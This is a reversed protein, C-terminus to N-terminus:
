ICMNRCLVDKEDSMYYVPNLLTFNFYLNVFISTALIMVYTCVLLYLSDDKDFNYVICTIRYVYNNNKNFCQLM